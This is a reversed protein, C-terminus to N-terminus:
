LVYVIIFKMWCYTPYQIDLYIRMQPVDSQLSWRETLVVITFLGPSDQYDWWTDHCELLLPCEMLLMLRFIAM